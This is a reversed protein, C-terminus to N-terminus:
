SGVAEPGGGAVLDGDGDPAPEGWAGGPPDGDGALLEGGDGLLM